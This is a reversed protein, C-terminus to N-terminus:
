PTSAGHTVQHRFVRAEVFSGHDFNRTCIVFFFLMFSYILSNDSIFVINMFLFAIRTAFHRASYMLGVFICFFVLGYEYFIKLLDSHMRQATGYVGFGKNALLYTSGPGQGFFLFQEPHAFVELAPLSLLARRGQGFQNASQGTLERIVWDFTGFGYLLIVLLLLCNLGIMVAPNLIHRARKEGFLVFACACIAAVVAIRKLSIVTMLLCLVFLRYRKEILALPTLLGFLFSFSGEFSSYSDALDFKLGSRFDGFLSFYTVIAALLICFLTWLKIRPIDILLAIAIGAFTFYLDKLGEDSALPSLILGALVFVLFPKAEDGLRASRDGLIAVLVLAPLAYILHRAFPLSISFYMFTLGAWFVM